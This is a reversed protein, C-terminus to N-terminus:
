TVSALPAISEPTLTFKVLISGSWVAEFACSRASNTASTQTRGTDLSTLTVSAGSLIAGKPDTVTGRVRGTDTQAVMLGALLLLLPLLLRISRRIGGQITCRSNKNQSM